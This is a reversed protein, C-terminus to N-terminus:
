PPQVRREPVTGHPAPRPACAPLPEPPAARSHRAGASGEVILGCRVGTGRSMPPGTARSRLGTIVRSSRRVDASCHGGHRLPNAPPDQGRALHGGVEGAAELAQGVRLHHSDARPGGLLRTREGIPEIDGPRVPTPPLQGRVLADVDDMDGRRVYGMVPCRSETDSSSTGYEDLLREGDVPALRVVQHFAGPPAPDERHLAHPKTTPGSDRCSSRQQAGRLPRGPGGPRGAGM